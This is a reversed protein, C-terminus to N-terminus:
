LPYICKASYAAEDRTYVIYMRSGIRMVYIDVAFQNGSEAPFNHMKESLVEESFSEKLEEEIKEKISVLLKKTM